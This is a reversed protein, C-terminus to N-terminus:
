VSRAALKRLTEIVQHLSSATKSIMNTDASIDCSVFADIILGATALSTRVESWLGARLAKSAAESSEGIYKKLGEYRLSGTQLWQLKLIVKREKENWRLM